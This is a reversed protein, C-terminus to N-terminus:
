ESEAFARYTQIVPPRANMKFRRFAMKASRLANEFPTVTNLITREIIWFRDLQNTKIRLRLLLHLFIALPVVRAPLNFITRNLKSGLVLTFYKIIFNMTSIKEPNLWPLFKYDLFGFAPNLTMDAWDELTAPPKFGAKICANYLEAGPYPRFAQPGIFFIDGDVAKYMEIALTLTKYMDEIEEDPIGIIFSCTLQIRPETRVLKAAEIAQDRFINKKFIKIVRDSGSEVALAFNDYGIDALRKLTVSNIYVKNFYNVRPNSLWKMGLPKAELLEILKEMRPKDLFFLEDQLAVKQVGWNDKFWKMEDYIREASMPRHARLQPEDYVTNICFTCDYPCGRGVHIAASRITNTTYKFADAKREEVYLDFPKLLSYDPVPLQEFSLTRGFKNTKLTGDIKYSLGPVKSYDPTESKLQEVFKLMAHEGEGYVVFDIVPHAAVVQTFLTPHIGGWIVQKGPYWTKIKKSLQLADSTHITMVSFGVVCADKSEKRVRAEYEEANDHALGDILM